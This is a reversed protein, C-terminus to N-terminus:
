FDHNSPFPHVQYKLPHSTKLEHKREKVGYVKLFPTKQRQPAVETRKSDGKTSFPPIIIESPQNAEM